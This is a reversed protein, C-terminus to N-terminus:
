ERSVYVSKVEPKRDYPRSIFFYWYQLSPFRSTYYMLHLVDRAYLIKIAGHIKYRNDTKFKKHVNSTYTHLQLLTNM